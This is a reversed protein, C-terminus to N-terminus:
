KVCVLYAIFAEADDGKRSPRFVGNGDGDADTGEWYVIFDRYGAERVIDEIEPIQWLRWEYRFARRLASGDPFEFHIYCRMEHTIPNFQDQDWVYTFEDHETREERLDMSEPGGFIDLFFVGDDALSDRVARFYDLLVHRQKFAFYSFNFACAIDARFDVPQRVDCRLLHVRAAREGLPVLHQQIGYNLTKECLDIGYARHERHRKVWEACLAATGCFDERLVHARRRRLRRFTRDLFQADVDPTQVSREYYEHRNAQQALTRTRSRPAVTTPLM